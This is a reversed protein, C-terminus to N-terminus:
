CIFSILGEQQNPHPPLTQNKSQGSHILSVIAKGLVTQGNTPFFPFAIPFSDIHPLCTSFFLYFKQKTLNAFYTLKLFGTITAIWTKFDMFVSEVRVSNLKQSTFPPARSLYTVTKDWEIPRNIPQLSCEKALWEWTKQLIGVM